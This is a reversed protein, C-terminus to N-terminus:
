DIVKLLRTGYAFYPAEFYEKKDIQYGHKQYFKIARVNKSFAWIIIQEFGKNRATQEAFELLRGGIGKGQAEAKIYIRWVEFAGPKDADVTAGLSLMGLVRGSETWVYEELRHNTFDNKLRREREQCGNDTLLDQSIYGAYVSKWNNNVINVVAEIDNEALPRIM